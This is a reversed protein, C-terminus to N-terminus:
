FPADRWVVEKNRIRYEKGGGLAQSSLTADFEGGGSPSLCGDVERQTQLVSRNIYKGSEKGKELLM